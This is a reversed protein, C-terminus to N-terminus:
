YEWLSELFADPHDEAIRLLHYAAGKPKGIGMEWKEVVDVTVGLIDALAERSLTYKQRLFPINVTRKRLYKSEWPNSIQNLNSTKVKEILLNFSVNDM